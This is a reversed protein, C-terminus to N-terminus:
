EHMGALLSQVEDVFALRGIPSYGQNFYPSAPLIVVNGEKVAKTGKWISSEELTKLDEDTGVAFIYDAEISALGDLSVVPLSIDEQEPMGVPKLLGMDNYLISGLGAQDFIFLSGASALFSLYTSDAGYTAKIQEGVEKAKALYNDIWAQAEAEKGFVGAVHLFDEKWDVQKMEVMVVPAIKSLQDYMKEQVTSIIILDPNLAMIAEVDMEALMSYGLIQADALTEELYTPLITYDYGDSNATGIVEYGILSLIDSAGSIDVIRKPDKPIEVDGKVDTVTVMEVTEQQDPEKPSKSCGVLLGVLVFFSMFSLFAKKM